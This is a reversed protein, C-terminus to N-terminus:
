YGLLDAGHKPYFPFVDKSLDIYEHVRGPVVENIWLITCGRQVHSPDQKPASDTM